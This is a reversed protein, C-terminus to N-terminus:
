KFRVLRLLPSQFSLMLAAQPKVVSLDKHTSNHLARGARSYVTAMLEAWHYGAWLWSCTGKDLVQEGGVRWPVEPLKQGEHGRLNRMQAVCVIIVACVRPKGPLHLSSLTCSVTAVQANAATM